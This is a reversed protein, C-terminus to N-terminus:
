RVKPKGDDIWKRAFLIGEAQADQETPFGRKVNLQRIEERFGSKWSVIVVPVWRDSEAIIRATSKIHHDKYDEDM